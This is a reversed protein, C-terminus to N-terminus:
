FLLFGVLDKSARCFGKITAVNELKFYRSGRSGVGCDLMLLFYDFLIRPLHRQSVDSFYKGWELSLFFRDIISWSEFDRNNSWTFNGGVLPIDSVRFLFGVNSTITKLRRFSFGV